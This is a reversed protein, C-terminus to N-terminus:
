LADNRRHADAADLLLKGPAGDQPFEDVQDLRVRQAAHLQAHGAVLQSLEMGGVEGVNHLLNRRVFALGNNVREILLGGRFCDGFEVLAELRLYDFFEVRLLSGVDDLFHVRVLSGVKDLAELRRFRLFNELLHLM